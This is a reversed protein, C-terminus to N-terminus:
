QKNWGYLSRSIDENGSKERWWSNKKGKKSEERGLPANLWSIVDDNQNNDDRRAREREEEKHKTSVCLEPTLHSAHFRCFLNLLIIKLKM